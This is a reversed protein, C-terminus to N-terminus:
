VTIILRRVVYFDVMSNPKTHNPLKQTHLTGFIPAKLKSLIIEM